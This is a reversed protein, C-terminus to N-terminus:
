VVVRSAVLPSIMVPDSGLARIGLARVRESAIAAKLARGAAEVEALMPAVREREATAEEATENWPDPRGPPETAEIM